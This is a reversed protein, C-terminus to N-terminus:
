LEGAALPEELRQMRSKSSESFNYIQKKNRNCLISINYFPPITALNGHLM